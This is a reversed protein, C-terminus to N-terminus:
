GLGGVAVLHSDPLGLLCHAHRGLSTVLVLGRLGAQLYRELQNRVERNSGAIKCEIGVAGEVLLDIRSGAVLTVEREVAFNGYRRLVWEVGAQLQEETSFRLRHCRLLRAIAAAEVM